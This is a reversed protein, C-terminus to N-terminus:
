WLLCCLDLYHMVGKHGTCSSVGNLPIFLVCWFCIAIQPCPLYYGKNSCNLLVRHNPLAIQMVMEIPLFLCLTIYSYLIYLVLLM